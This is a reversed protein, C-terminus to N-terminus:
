LTHGDDAGKGKKEELGGNALKPMGTRKVTQHIAACTEAQAGLRKAEKRTQLGGTPEAARCRHPVRAREQAGAHEHTGAKSGRGDRGGTGGGERGEGRERRPWAAGALKDSTAKRQLDHPM